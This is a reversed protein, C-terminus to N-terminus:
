IYYLSNVEIEHQNQYSKEIRSEMIQMQEKYMKIEEATKELKELVFETELEAKIRAENLERYKIYIFLPLISSYRFKKQADIPM